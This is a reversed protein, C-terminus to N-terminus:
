EDEWEIDDTLQEIIADSAKADMTLVNWDVGCVSLAVLQITDVKVQRWRSHPVGFDEWECDATFYAELHDSHYSAHM